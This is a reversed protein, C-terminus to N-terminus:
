KAYGLIVRSVIEKAIERCAKETAQEKHAASEQVTGTSQFTIKIPSTMERFETVTKGDTMTIDVRMILEQEKVFEDVAGIAGLLFSTVRAEIEVDGGSAKVEIGQNLFERSLSNHLREELLPEYTRNLVPRITVSDFTLYSSGIIRYGCSALSGTLIFLVFYFILTNKKM